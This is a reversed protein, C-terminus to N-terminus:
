DPDECYDDLVNHTMRNLHELAVVQKLSDYSLFSCLESLPARELLSFVPRQIEKFIKERRDNPAVIHLKIDMNPQLALLDAMRLLGSYVSTTHEVEFARIISRGKIWLIDIQQITKLTTDEYNLPLMDLLDEAGSVWESLVGKRDAKPIWIKYGMAQGIKALLGQMKISERNEVIHKEPDTTEDEDPVTISVVKNERKIRHSLKKEFDKEDIPYIKGNTKQQLLIKELFAADDKNFETLSCRLKGTWNSGSKDYGRTFSLNEWVNADRIPIAQNKELWVIPKVKFRVTFPDDEPFFIPHTNNFSKSEVQLIGVWRSFKTMYCILKDGPSINNAAKQQRPRFGSVDMPSEGFAKYTTPSFLDLFYAM